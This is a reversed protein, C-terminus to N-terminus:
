ARNLGAYERQVLIEYPVVKGDEDADCVLLSEYGIGEHEARILSRVRQVPLGLSRLRGLLPAWRPLAFAEADSKVDAYEYKKSRAVSKRMRAADDVDKLESKLRDSGNESLLLDAIHVINDLRNRKREQDNPGGAWEDSPRPDV